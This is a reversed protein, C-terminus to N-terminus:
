LKLCNFRKLSVDYQKFLAKKARKKKGRQAKPGVITDRFQAPISVKGLNVALAVIHACM